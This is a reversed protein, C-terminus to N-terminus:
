NCAVLVESNDADCCELIESEYIRHGCCKKNNDRGTKFLFRNPYDGCCSDLGGGNLIASNRPQCFSTKVFGFSSQYNYIEFLSTQIMNYM